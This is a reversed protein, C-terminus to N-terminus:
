WLPGAFTSDEQGPTKLGFSIVAMSFRRLGEHGFLPYKVEGASFKPGVVRKWLEETEVFTYEFPAVEVFLLEGHKYAKKM